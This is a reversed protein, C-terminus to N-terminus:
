KQYEKCNTDYVVIEKYGCAVSSNSLFAEELWQLVIKEVSSLEPVDLTEVLCKLLELFAVIRTPSIM